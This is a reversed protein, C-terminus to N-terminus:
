EIIKNKIFKENNNKCRRIFKRLQELLVGEKAKTKPTLAPTQVPHPILPDCPPAQPLFLRHNLHLSIIHALQCIIPTISSNINNPLSLM